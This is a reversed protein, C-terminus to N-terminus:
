YTKKSSGGAKPNCKKKMKKSDEHRPFKTLLNRYMENVDLKCEPCPFEKTLFPQYWFNVALNRHEEINPYSQVEHWWFAPLYLVDGEKLFCELPVARTYNPFRDYDPKLIDVPSMVMSTSDLLEHNRFKGSKRDYGLVAEQIHAEYLDYNRYPEFLTLRKNGRLQCLFNDFPDFHLKGLTHGNSLWMNLHSLKLIDSAFPMEDVDYELDPFYERISSYELYASINEKAVDDNEVLDLFEGFRMNGVAPRVVVLDPFKLKERVGDPIKFTEYNEFLKASDCGEFEGRPTLKIHVKDKGYSARLFDNSWKHIADWHEIANEIIVPKSRFLYNRAFERANRPPTSIRDCKRPLPTVNDDIKLPKVHYLNKLISDREYGEATLKDDISVFYFCRKNLFEVVKEISRILVPEAKPPRRFDAPILCKRDEPQRRFFAISAEKNNGIIYDGKEWPFDGRSETGTGDDDRSLMGVILDTENRYLQAVSELLTRVTTDMGILFNYRILKGRIEELSIHRLEQQQLTVAYSKRLVNSSLLLVILVIAPTSEM